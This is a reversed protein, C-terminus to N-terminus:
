LDYSLETAEKGIAQSLRALAMNLMYVTEIYNKKALGDGELAEMLDKAPTIGISWGMASGVFWKKSTLRRREAVELSDIAQELEWVSKKVQLDIGPLAYSEMAKLKLAEAREESAEAAHRAFELDFKLGVGIGGQLRNFPDNAYISVQRDRVPSWSFGGLAGLFIVPYSQAQKAESLSLRAQQGAKLADIEPRAIKAIALYEEMTKKEFKEPRLKRNPLAEFELSSIWAVARKATKKAQEAYLKKQKLDDLTTKLRYVDHPKVNSKKKKMNKESTVVAEDLFKSLDEVLADLETAMLYGYYMEKATLIIEAKKIDVQGQRATIQNEAAKRYGSLQGFTYLPQAIEVGTSIFPGWKSTDVRSSLANGREEFIPAAIIIASAKPYLAARARDLQARAVDVEGMAEQIQGNHTLTNKLISSLSLDPASIEPSGLASRLFFGLSLWHLQSLIIFTARRM